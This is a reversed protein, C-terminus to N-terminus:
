RARPSFDHQKEAKTMLELEENQKMASLGSGSLLSVELMFLGLVILGVFIHSCSRSRFVLGVLREPVCFHRYVLM